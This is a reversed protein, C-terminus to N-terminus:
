QVMLSLLGVAKLAVTKGGANPGSIVLTKYKDGIKVSLPVVEKSKKLLLLPHRGNKIDLSGEESVIPEKGGIEISFMSLAYYLDIEVLIAENKVIDQINFRVSGTLNKLIKRVEREEKLRLEELTNNVDIIELPEVFVTAGTSSRHHAIGNAKHAFEERVPSRFLM